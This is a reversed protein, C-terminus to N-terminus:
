NQMVITKVLKDTVTQHHKNVLASGVGLALLPKILARTLSRAFTVRRQQTTYVRVGVLHKGLTGRWSSATTIADYCISILVSAGTIRILNEPTFFMYQEGPYWIMGTALAICALTALLCFDIIAASTRRLVSAPHMIPAHKKSAQAPRTTTTRTPPTRFQKPILKEPAVALPLVVFESSKKTSDLNAFQIQIVAESHGAQVLRKKIDADSYQNKRATSIYQTLHDM